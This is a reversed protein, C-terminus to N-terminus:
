NMRTLWKQQCALKNWRRGLKLTVLVIKDFICSLERVWIKFTFRVLDLNRPIAKLDIIQMIIRPRENFEFYFAQKNPLCLFISRPCKQNEIVWISLLWNLILLYKPYSHWASKQLTFSVFCNRLLGTNQFKECFEM